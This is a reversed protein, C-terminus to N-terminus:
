TNEDVSSEDLSNPFYTYETTQRGNGGGASWGSEHDASQEM